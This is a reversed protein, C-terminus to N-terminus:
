LGTLRDLILRELSKRSEELLFDLLLKKPIALQKGVTALDKLPLLALGREFNSISQPSSYGLFLSIELQTINKAIRKEKFFKCIKKRSEEDTYIYM